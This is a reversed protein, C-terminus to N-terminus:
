SLAFSPAASEWTFIEEWISYLCVKKKTYFPIASNICTNYLRLFIEMTSVIAALARIERKSSGAAAGIFCCCPLLFFFQSIEAKASCCFLSSEDLQSKHQAQVIYRSRDVECVYSEVGSEVSRARESATLLLSCLTLFITSPRSEKKKKFLM